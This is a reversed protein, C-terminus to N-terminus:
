AMVVNELTFKFPTSTSGVGGGTMVIDASAIGLLSLETNIQSIIASNMVHGEVVQSVVGIWITPKFEFRARQEPAISTKLALLRGDKYINANVAGHQLLNLVEIQTQSSAMGGYILNEGSPTLQVKFLQGSEASLQPTFNGYSDSTSVKYDFPYFVFPYNEGHGCNQIVKWAVALEDFGAAVNKQFIVIQQNNSNNSNNIFNLKVVM